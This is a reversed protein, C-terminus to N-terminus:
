SDKKEIAAEMWKLLYHMWFANSPGRQRWRNSGAHEKGIKRYVERHPEGDSNEGLLWPTEEDLDTYLVSGERYVLAEKTDELIDVSYAEALDGRTEAYSLSYDIVKVAYKGGRRDVLVNSQHMDRHEVRLGEMDRVAMELERGILVVDERTLSAWDLKELERGGHEMEIVGFFGSSNNKQPTMNEALEANKEAWKKSASVLFSTYPSRVLHWAFIKTSHPSMNMREMILCEKVFQTIRTHQVRAYSKNQTLPVIKYVRMTERNIFIESFTSEGLKELKHAPICSFRRWPKKKVNSAEEISYDSNMFGGSYRGSIFSGGPLQMSLEAASHMSVPVKKVEGESPARLDSGAPRAEEAPFSFVEPAALTGISRRPPKGRSKFTRIKM